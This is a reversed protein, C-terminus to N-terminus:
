FVGGVEWVGLQYTNIRWLRATVCHGIEPAATNGSLGFRIAVLVSANRVWGLRGLTAAEAGWLGLVVLVPTECIVNVSHTCSRELEVGRLLTRGM